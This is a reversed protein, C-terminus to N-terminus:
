FPLPEDEGFAHYRITVGLEKRVVGPTFELGKHEFFAAIAKNMRITSIPYKVSNEKNYSDKQINFDSVKIEKAEIWSEYNTRIFDIANVGYTQELQKEIGGESLGQPKMKKDSGLWTKVCEMVFSDYGHWDETTWGKPFHCGFHVDVGGCKTFFDSFEIPIIRRKLGGDTVDYSFNTQIIFKPGDEVPIEVEDKYLKKLIFSGTSPEKLFSFDFEKRVDNIAMIRQYNWSQFFKEDFNLQSGNKSTFSTTHSLLNCFINKGSGGGDMPDPCKETLVIIYGMTEDKFEHALYGIIKKIYEEKTSLGISLNLFELYRGGEFFNYERQQIRNEFVYMGDIDEEYYLYEVGAGTIKVFGNLFFKYCVERTDKLILDENINHLRTISFKGNKQLFAEYANCIKENEDADEEKIYEKIKDQFLREDAMRLRYEDVLVLEKRYLCFGMRTAVRYVGERSIKIGDEDESWFVGFPYTENLQSITAQHMEKAEDSFNAPLEVGKKALSVAAKIEKSRNIRGYGKGVLYAFTQKRDNAFKLVALASAPKYGRSPEFSSSSTFIYYIRKHKNFSASIGVPKDPRTFWIFNANEKMRKWGHDDLVTEAESSGNFHEFPNEDYYDNVKKNTEKYEVVKIKENYGECIEIISCREAWTISPIKNEKFVTYNVSPPAAIYGGEGRTELAAEKQGEKYALKLNGAPAHDSIRYLIHYGGSPTKHIRLRDFLKPYFTQIDIFLRADIGIWNKVDIDIVELNGSVAGCIIGVASTDYKEMSSFLDGKSMATKTLFGWKMCPQKPYKEVGNVERKSDYIPMLSLGEAHLKEILPWEKTM